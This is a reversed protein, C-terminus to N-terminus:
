SKYISDYRGLIKIFSTTKKMQFLVKDLEKEKGNIEFDVFFLYEWPRGFIPRSEIKTLNLGLKAYPELTRFLSGPKHEVSFVLSVKNGNELMKKGIVIFRTFNTKNDTLNSILIKLRNIKGAEKSALACVELSSEKAVIQAASATDSTLIPKIWKHKDFFLQCQKIAEPHSFCQKLHNITKEKNKNLLKKVFLSHKIRMIVEGIITLNSSLLLDYVEYISGSTSNELPLVGAFAQNNLVTDAIEKFNKKGIMNVKTKAFFKNTVMYSYSGPIGLYVVNKM